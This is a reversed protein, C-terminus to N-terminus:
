GRGGGRRGQRRGSRLRALFLGCWVGLYALREQRYGCMVLCVVASGSEFLIASEKGCCGFGNGGGGGCTRLRWTSESTWNRYACVTTDLLTAFGAFMLWSTAKETTRGSVANM